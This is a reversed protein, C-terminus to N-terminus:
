GTFRPVIAIANTAITITTTATARPDGNRTVTQGTFV